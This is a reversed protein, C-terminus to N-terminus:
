GGLRGAAVVDEERLRVVRTRVLGDIRGGLRRREEDHPLQEGISVSLM